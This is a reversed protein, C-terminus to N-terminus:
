RSGLLRVRYFRRSLDASPLDYFDLNFASATNTAIPVWSTFTTFTETKELVYDRGPRARAQFHVLGPNPSFTLPMLWLYNGGGNLRVIGVRELGDVSIFDGSAVVRGDPQLAIANVSGAGFQGVMMPVASFDADLSGDPNLRVINAPSDVGPILVKGAKGGVIIRGGPASLFDVAGQVRVTSKFTSDLSGNRKLKIIPVSLNAGDTSLALVIGGDEQLAFAGGLNTPRFTTDRSGDAKLKIFGVSSSLVVSGDSDVAAASLFGLFAFPKYNADPTGDLNVRRIGCHYGGYSVILKGDPQLALATVLVANSSTVPAFSSDVSGDLNLQVISPGNTDFGCSVLIKGNSRTLLSYVGEILPDPHFTQDLRGDPDLRLLGTSSLQATLIRGDPQIALIGGGYVWSPIPTTGVPNFGPDLGGAAEDDFITLYATSGSLGVVSGASSPESLELLLTRNGDRTSNDFITVSFTQETEGPAFQLTGQVQVYDRGPLATEPWTTYHVQASTSLDGIRQVTIIAREGDEGVAYQSSSFALFTGQPPQLDVLALNSRPSGNVLNFRGGILLRNGPLLELAGVEPTDTDDALEIQLTEDFSGDANLRAIGMRPFGAVNTFTGGLIIKGDAQQVMTTVQPVFLYSQNTALLQAQFTPDVSGDSNFRSVTPIIDGHGGDDYWSTRNFLAKGDTELVLMTRYAWGHQVITPEFGPDPSGDGLLRELNAMRAVLIKGDPQVVLDTLPKVGAAPAFTSDISGDAHLRVLDAEVNARLFPGGGMLVRGASDLALANLFPVGKLVATTNFGSDVRGDPRLRTVSPPLGMQNALDNAYIVMGDACLLVKAVPYATGQFSQDFTGDANLRVLGSTGGVLIKGDPQVVTSTVDGLARTQPLFERVLGTPIFNIGDTQSQGQIPIAVILGSCLIPYAPLNM